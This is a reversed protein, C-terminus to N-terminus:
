IKKVCLVVSKSLNFLFVLSPFITKRFDKHIAKVQFIKSRKKKQYLIIEYKLYLTQKKREVKAILYLVETISFTKVMIESIIFFCFVFVLLKLM